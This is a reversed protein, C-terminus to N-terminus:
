NKTHITMQGVVIPAKQVFPQVTSLEIDGLLNEYLADSDLALILKVPSTKLKGNKGPFIAGGYDWDFGAFQIDEKNWIALESLPMGLYIGEKSKIKQKNKLIYNEDSIYYHAEIFDISDPSEERWMFRIIHGNAKDTLITTKAEYTGEGYFSSTETLADKSFHKELDTRSKLAAYDEFYMFEGAISTSNEANDALIEAIDTSDNSVSESNEPSNSCAFIFLSLGTIYLSSKKM